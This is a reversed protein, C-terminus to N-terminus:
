TCIGAVCTQPPTCSAVCTDSLDCCFCNPSGLSSCTSDSARCPGSLVVPKPGLNSLGRRM